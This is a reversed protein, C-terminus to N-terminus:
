LGLFSSVCLLLGRRTLYQDSQEPEPSSLRLCFRSTPKSRNADLNDRTMAHRKNRDVKGKYCCCPPSLPAVHAFFARVRFSSSPGSGGGCSTKRERVRGTNKERSSARDVVELLYSVKRAVLM